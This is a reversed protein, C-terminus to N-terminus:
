LNLAQCSSFYVMVVLAGRIPYNKIKRQFEFQLRLLEPKLHFSNMLYPHENIWTVIIFLKYEALMVSSLEFISAYIKQRIKWFLIWVLVLTHHALKEKKKKLFFLLSFSAFSVKIWFFFDRTTLWIRFWVPFNFSSTKQM